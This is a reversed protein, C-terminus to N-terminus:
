EHKLGEKNLKPIDKGFSMIEFLGDNFNALREYEEEMQEVPLEKLKDSLKQQKQELVEIKEQLESVSMAVKSMADSTQEHRKAARGKEERFDRAMVRVFATLIAVALGFGALIIGYTEM